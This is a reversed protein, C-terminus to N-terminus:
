QDDEEGLLELRMAALSSRQREKQDSLCEACWLPFDKRYKKMERFASSKCWLVLNIRHGSATARVCHRNSGRYLVAQGPVHAYDFLEESHSKSHMHKECRTGRFHLDGGSFKKGLCVDLTVESDDVHFGLETDKDDGYEVVFGHYSDLTDGGVEPYFVKSIPCIYDNMLKALMKEFGFDDLVAGFRSMKNPHLIPINLEAAWKEFNEVEAILLNCFRPNLMEFTFVGPHPESLVHRFSEVSKGSIAKLFSPAFFLTPHLTYIEKHLPQYNLSIGERYDDIRDAAIREDPPLYKSVVEEMFKFKDDRNKSLM